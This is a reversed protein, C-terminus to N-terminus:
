TARSRCGRALPDGAEFAVLSDFTIAEPARGLSVLLRRPRLSAAQLRRAHAASSLAVRRLMHPESLGAARLADVSCLDRGVSALYGDLHAATAARERASWAAAHELWLRRLMERGFALHRAEDRHHYEHIARVPQAVRPDRATRLNIADVVEEFLLVRAFFM